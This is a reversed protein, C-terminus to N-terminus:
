LIQEMSVSTLRFTKEGLNEDIWEQNLIMNDFDKWIRSDGACSYKRCISPRDDYVSCCRKDMDLHSCFGNKEHRIYYPTGLEWKLKGAEIEKATLAFNLQCCIGHCVHMRENCNVPTFVNSDEDTGDVRLAVGANLVEGKQKMENKVKDVYLALTEEALGTKQMLYDILGFLFSENQNIREAYRSLVSHVYYGGFELQREIKNIEDQQTPKNM